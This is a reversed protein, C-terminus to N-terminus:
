YRIKRIKGCECMLIEVTQSVIVIDGKFREEWEYEKKAHIKWKHNCFLKKFLGM